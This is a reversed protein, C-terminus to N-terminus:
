STVVKVAAHLDTGLQEAPISAKIQRKPEAEPPDIRIALIQRHGSVM